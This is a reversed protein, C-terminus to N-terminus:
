ALEKPIAGTILAVGYPYDEGRNDHCYTVSVVPEYFGCSSTYMEVYKGHKLKIDELQAILSDIDMSPFKRM